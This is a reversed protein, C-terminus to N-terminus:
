RVRAKVDALRYDQYEVDYRADVTGAALTMRFRIEIHHPLWVGPFPQQMRMSAKLDDMRVMARGPLFDMDIDDFTYQLIQHEAADVWLTVLSVKNMKDGVDPDRERLRRDPRSRGESFLLTPYYEIRLVDRDFLRDRGVLAYRGPEFKFRLFYAASVFRPEVGRGFVADARLEAAAGETAPTAANDRPSSADARRRERRRERALWDEEYSRRESEAIAVGNARLPSRIFYGQRIFWTYERAFGYLRGGDPGTLVFSEREDLVYQLLKKWNGDREALVREMFADLDSPQATRAAAAPMLACTLVVLFSGGVATLRPNM